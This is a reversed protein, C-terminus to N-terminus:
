KKYSLNPKKGIMQTIKQSGQKIYKVFHKNFITHFFIIIKKYSLKNIKKIIPTKQLNQKINRLIQFIKYYYIIISIIKKYFLKIIQIM